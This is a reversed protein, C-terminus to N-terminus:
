KVRPGHLGPGLDVQELESPPYLKDLTQQFQEPNDVSDLLEELNQQPSSEGPSKPQPPAAM